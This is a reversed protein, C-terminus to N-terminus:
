GERLVYMHWFHVRPPLHPNGAQCWPRSLVLNLNNFQHCWSWCLLCIRLVNNANRFVKIPGRGKGPISRSWMSKWGVVAVAKGRCALVRAKQLHRESVDASTRAHMCFLTSKPTTLLPMDVAPENNNVLFNWFPVWVIINVMDCLQVFWYPNASKGENITFNSNPKLSHISIYLKHLDNANNLPYKWLDM